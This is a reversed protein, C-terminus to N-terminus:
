DMSRDEDRASLCYAMEVAMSAEKERSVENPFESFPDQHDIGTGIGRLFDELNEIEGLEFALTKIISRRLWRVPESGADSGPTRRLDFHASRNSGKSVEWGDDDITDKFQECHVRFLALLYHLYLFRQSPRATTKFKLRQNNVDRFTPKQYTILVDLIKEDLVLLKLELKNADTKDSVIVIKAANLAEAIRKHLPLGNKISWIAEYSRYYDYELGFLYALNAESISYPVVQAAVVENELYNTKTVPCWCVPNVSDSDHDSFNYTALIRARFSTRDFDNTVPKPLNEAIAALYADRMSARDIDSATGYLIKFRNTLAARKRLLEKDCRDLEKHAEKLVSRNLIKDGRFAKIVNKNKRLWFMEEVTLRKRNELFKRTQKENNRNVVVEKAKASLCFSRVRETFETVGEDVEASHKRVIGPIFFQMLPDEFILKSNLSKRRQKRKNRNQQFSSDSSDSLDFDSM